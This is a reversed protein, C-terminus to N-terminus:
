ICVNELKVGILELEKNIQSLLTSQSNQLITLIEFNSKNSEVNNNKNGLGKNVKNVNDKGSSQSTKGALSCSGVLATIHLKVIRLVVLRLTNINQSAAHISKSFKNDDVVLIEMAKTAAKFTDIITWFIMAELIVSSGEATTTKLFETQDFIDIKKNKNKDGKGIKNVYGPVDTVIKDTLITKPVMKVFM